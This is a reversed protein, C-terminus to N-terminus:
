LASIFTSVHPIKQTCWGNHQQTCRPTTDQRTVHASRSLGTAAVSPGFVFSKTAGGTTRLIKSVSGCGDGCVGGQGAKDSTGGPRDLELVVLEGLVCFDVRGCLRSRAIRSRSWTTSALAAAISRACLVHVLCVVAAVWAGRQRPRRASSNRSSQWMCAPSSRLADRACPADDLCGRACALARPCNAGTGPAVLWRM